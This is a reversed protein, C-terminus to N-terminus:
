WFSQKKKESPPYGYKMKYLTSFHKPSSYGIMNSIDSISLDTNLLMKDAKELRLDTLYDIYKKGTCKKFLNSFYSPNLGVANSVDELSINKYFNSHIFDIAKDICNGDSLDNKEKIVRNYKTFAPCVRDICEILEYYNIPKLLYEKVGYKIATKAYNFDNYSSIIIIPNSYGTKVLEEIMKLGDMIPMIIDTIILDIPLLCAKNYGELGNSCEIINLDKYKNEFIKKIGKRILPEDDCILLSKMTM